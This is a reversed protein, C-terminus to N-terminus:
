LLEDNKFNLDLELKNESTQGFSICFLIKTTGAQFLHTTIARSIEKGVITNTDVLSASM